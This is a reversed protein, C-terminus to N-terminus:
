LEQNEKKLRELVSDLDFIAQETDGKRNSIRAGKEEM